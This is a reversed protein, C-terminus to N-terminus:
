VELAREGEKLDRAADERVEDRLLEDDIRRSNHGLALERFVRMIKDGRVEEVRGLAEGHAHLVEGGRVEEPVPDHLEPEDDPEQALAEPIVRDGEDDKGEEDRVLEVAVLECVRDPQEKKREEIDDHDPECPVLVCVEPPHHPRRLM